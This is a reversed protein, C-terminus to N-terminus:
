SFVHSLVHRLYSTAIVYGPHLYLYSGMELYGESKSIPVNKVNIKYLAPDLNLLIYREKPIM